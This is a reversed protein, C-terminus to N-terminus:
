SIPPPGFVQFLRWQLQVLIHVESFGDMALPADVIM